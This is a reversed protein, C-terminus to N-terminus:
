RVRRCQERLAITKPLSWYLFFFPEAPTLALLARKAELSGVNCFNTVEGSAGEWGRSVLAIEAFGM